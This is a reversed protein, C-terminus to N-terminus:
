FEQIQEKIGVLNYNSSWSSGPEIMAETIDEIRPNPIRVAIDIEHSAEKKGSKVM